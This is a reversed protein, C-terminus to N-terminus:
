YRYPFVRQDPVHIGVGRTGAHVVVTGAPPGHVVTGLSLGLDLLSQAPAPRRVPTNVVVVTPDPHFSGHIDLTGTVARESFPIGHNYHSVDASPLDPSFVGRLLTGHLPERSVTYITLSPARRPM